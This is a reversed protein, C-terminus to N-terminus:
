QMGNGFLVDFPSSGAAEAEDIREKEQAVKADHQQVRVIAPADAKVGAQVAQAQLRASALKWKADTADVGQKYALHWLFLVAVVILLVGAAYVLVGALRKGVGWGEVIAILGGM